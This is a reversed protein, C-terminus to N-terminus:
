QMDELNALQLHRSLCGLLKVAVRSRMCQVAPLGHLPCDAVNVASQVYCSSMWLGHQRMIVVICQLAANQERNQSQGGELAGIVGMNDSKVVFHVDCHGMAIAMCLGLEIAVMEAWGIDQGDTKWGELLRWSQWYGDFVVGVGWGMSADVWFEIRSQQPPEKVHSGCFDHALQEQWYGIDDLLAHWPSWQVHHNRASDLGSSFCILEGLHSRGDPLALTCHVLTGLV